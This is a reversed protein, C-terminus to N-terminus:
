KYRAALATQMAEQVSKLAPKAKSVAEKTKSKLELCDLYKMWAKHRPKECKEIIKSRKAINSETDAPIRDLGSNHICSIRKDNAADSFAKENKCPEGWVLSAVSLLTLTNIFFINKIM